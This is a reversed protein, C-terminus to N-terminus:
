CHVWLLHLSITHHIDKFVKQCPFINGIVMCFVVYPYITSFLDNLSLHVYLNTGTYMCSCKPFQFASQRESRTVNTNWLLPIYGQLYTNGCTKCSLWIIRYHHTYEVKLIKYTHLTPKTITCPSWLNWKGAFHIIWRPQLIWPLISFWSRWISQM